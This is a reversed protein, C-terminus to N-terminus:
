NPCPIATVQAVPKRANLLSDGLRRRAGDTSVRLAGSRRRSFATRKADDQSALTLSGPDDGTVLSRVWEAGLRTKGAGRGGLVLWTTWPGGGQALEPPRQHPHAFQTWDAEWRNVWGTPLMAAIERKEDPLLQTWRKYLRSASSM